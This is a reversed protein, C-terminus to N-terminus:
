RKDKLQKDREKELTTLAKDIMENKESYLKLEFPSDADTNESYQKRLPHNSTYDVYKQIDKYQQKSDTLESDNLQNALYHLSSSPLLWSWMVEFQGTIVGENLLETYLRFAFVEGYPSDKTNREKIIQEELYNHKYAWKLFKKSFLRGSVCKFQENKEILRYEEKNKLFWEMRGVGDNSYIATNIVLNNGEYDQYHIDDIEFKKEDLSFDIFGISNIVSPSLGLVIFLAEDITIKPAQTIRRIDFREVELKTLRFRWLQHYKQWQKWVTLYSKDLQYSAWDNFSTVGKPNYCSKFESVEVWGNRTYIDKWEDYSLNGDKIEGFARHELKDHWYNVSHEVISLEQRLEEITKHTFTKSTTYKM